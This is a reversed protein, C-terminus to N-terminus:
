KRFLKKWFPTKADEIVLDCIVDHIANLLNKEADLIAEWNVVSNPEEKILDRTEEIRSEIIEANNRMRKLERNM